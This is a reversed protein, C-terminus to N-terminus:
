VQITLTRKRFEDKRNLTPKLSRITLAELILLTTLTKASSVISVNDMSLKVNACNEFHAGVLNSSSHEKIRTILHRDTQGVYRADCSPCKIQYVVRSKLPIEVQKKLSPLVNKLKRTTFIIKSPADIRRLSEKFKDSVNGRYEVYVTKEIPKPDENDAETDANVTEPKEIKEITSHIIPMYFHPPYQNAELLKKGKDLSMYFNRKSSCARYIRHVLNSVISRKSKRPALAHYNLTLGTDTPKTYWKSSLIRGKRILKMDLFPLSNTTEREVTFQLSNEYGEFSNIEKLKDDVQDKHINRVIDDMYRAYIIADGKIKDDFKSMWGNALLPAPPSGMALGDVQRYYGEHTLMVVNCSSIELMSKFTEKDVPPEPYKGSYLLNTCDDIAENVPVNTYLSKVDFSIIVDNANLRIDKM